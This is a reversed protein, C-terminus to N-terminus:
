RIRFEMLEERKAGRVISGDMIGHVYAESVMGYYDGGRPRLIFPVTGGRLVCILDSPRTDRSGLGLYGKTTVLFSRHMSCSVASTRFPQIYEEDDLKDERRGMWAEFRGAYEWEPLPRGKSVDRDAILTRWFAERRGCTKEYPNAEPSFSEVYKEWEKCVDLQSDHRNQKIKMDEELDFGPYIDHRPAQFAAQVFDVFLGCTVLTEFSGEDEIKLTISNFHDLTFPALRAFSLSDWAANDAAATFWTQPWTEAEGSVSKPSVFQSIRDEKMYDPVWSPLAPDKCTQHSQLTALPFLGENQKLRYKCVLILLQRASITYDIKITQRDLGLCMSLLAFIKDVPETSQSEDTVMLMQFLPIGGNAIRDKFEDWEKLIRIFPGALTSQMPLLRSMYKWRYKTEANTLRTFSEVSAVKRGCHFEPKKALLAEQVVWVRTWWKRRMLHKVAKWEDPDLTFDPDDFDITDVRNIFDMALDSDEASKGLWIRVYSAVDVDAMGGRTQSLGKSKGNAYIEGMLRVQHSKEEPSEQNICVADIWVVVDKESDRLYRLAIELSKMVSARNEDVTIECRDSQEDWCYSLAMYAPNVELSISNLKCQIEDGFNGACVTLLRIERKDESLESYKLNSSTDISKSPEKGDRGNEYSSVESSTGQAISGKKGDELEEKKAATMNWRMMSTDSLGSGSVRKRPERVEDLQREVMAVAEKEQGTERLDSPLTKVDRPTIPHNAGLMKETTERGQVELEEKEMRRKQLLLQQLMVKKGVINSTSKDRVEVELSRTKKDLMSLFAKTAEDWTRRTMSIAAVSKLDMTDQQQKVLGSKSREVMELLMQEADKWRRQEVYMNALQMMALTTMEEMGSIGSRTAIVQKILDEAQKWRGQKTCILAVRSMSSLTFDHEIGFVQRGTEMCALALEQSLSYRGPFFYFLAFSSGNDCTSVHRGLCFAKNTFRSDNWVSADMHAVLLRKEEASTRTSTDICSQIRTVVFNIAEFTYTQRPDEAERVQVWDRILPHLSFSSSYPGVNSITHLLSLEHLQQILSWFRMHDWRQGQQTDESCQDTPAEASSKESSPGDSDSAGSVEVKLSRGDPSASHAPTTTFIDMWEPTACRAEWRARFISEGIHSPEFFASLILFHHFKDRKQHDELEVQHYLMEWTCFASISNDQDELGRVETRILDWFYGPMSQLVKNREGEYAALFDDARDLSIRQHRLYSAAQDIALALGGLREVVKLWTDKHRSRDQAHYGRLM